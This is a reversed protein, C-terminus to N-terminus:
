FINKSSMKLHNFINKVTQKIKKVFSFKQIKTDPDYTGEFYKQLLKMTRGFIKRDLAEYRNLTKRLLFDYEYLIKENKLLTTRIVFHYFCPKELCCLNDKIQAFKHDPITSALTVHFKFKKEYDFPSLQCYSQFNKSLNWRFNDLKDSPNVNIFVVNTSEFIGYGNIEFNPIPTGACTRIFDKILKAENGTSIYGCLTIHPIPRKNQTIGLSFKNDIQYILRKIEDNTKGQFRIQILYSDM